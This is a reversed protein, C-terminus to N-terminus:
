PLKNARTLLNEVRCKIGICGSGRSLFSLRLWMAALSALWKGPFKVKPTPDRACLECWLVCFNGSTDVHYTYNAVFKSQNHPSGFVRHNVLRSAVLSAKSAFKSIFGYDFLYETSENRPWKHGRSTRTTSLLYFFLTMQYWGFVGIKPDVWLGSPYLKEDTIREYECVTITFIKLASDRYKLSFLNGQKWLQM